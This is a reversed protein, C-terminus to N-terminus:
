KIYMVWHIDVISLNFPMTCKKERWFFFDSIGLEHQNYTLYFLIQNKKKGFYICARFGHAM